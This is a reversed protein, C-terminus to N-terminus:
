GPEEYHARLRRDFEGSPDELASASGITERDYPVRVREEEANVEIRDAPVTHGNVVVDSLVDSVADYVTEEIEGVRTGAADELEYGEMITYPNQDSTDEVDKERFPDGLFPNEL